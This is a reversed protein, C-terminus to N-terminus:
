AEYFDEEMVGASSKREADLMADRSLASETCESESLFPYGHLGFWKPATRFPEIHVTEDIWRLTMPLHEPNEVPTPEM